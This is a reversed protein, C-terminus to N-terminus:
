PIQFGAHAGTNLFAYVTNVVEGCAWAITEMKQCQLLIVKYANKETVMLSFLLILIYLFTMKQLIIHIPPTNRYHNM